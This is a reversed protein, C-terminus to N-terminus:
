AMSGLSYKSLLHKYILKHFVTLIDNYLIRYTLPLTKTNNINSVPSRNRYVLACIMHFCCASSNASAIVLSINTLMKYEDTTSASVHYDFDANQILDTTLNLSLILYWNLSNAFNLLSLQHQLIM